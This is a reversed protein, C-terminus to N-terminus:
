YPFKFKESTTIVSCFSNKPTDGFEHTEWILESDSIPNWEFKISQMTYTAERTLTPKSPKSNPNYKKHLGNRLSHLTELLNKINNTNKNFSTGCAKIINNMHEEQYLIISRWLDKNQTIRLYNESQKLIHEFQKLVCEFHMIMFGYLLLNKTFMNNNNNNFTNEDRMMNCLLHFMIVMNDTNDTMPWARCFNKIDNNIKVAHMMNQKLKILVNKHTKDFPLSYYKQLKTFIIKIIPICKYSKYVDILNIYKSLINACENFVVYKIIPSLEEIEDMKDLVIIFTTLNDIITSKNIGDMKLTSLETIHKNFINIQKEMNENTCKIMKNITSIINRYKIIIDYDTLENYLTLICIYGNFAQDIIEDNTIYKYTIEFYDM